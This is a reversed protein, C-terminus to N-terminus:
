LETCLLPVSSIDPFRALGTPVAALGCSSISRNSEPCTCIVKVKGFLTWVQETPWGAEEETFLPTVGARRWCRCPAWKVKLKPGRLVWGCARDWAISLIYVNRVSFMLPGHMLCRSWSGFLATSLWTCLRHIRLFKSRNRWWDGDAYGERCSANL